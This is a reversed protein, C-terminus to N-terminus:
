TNIAPMVVKFVIYFCVGINLVSILFPVVSKIGKEIFINITAPIFSILGMIFTFYLTLLLFASLVRNSSFKDLSLLINNNNLVIYQYVSFGILFLTVISAVFFPIRLSKM